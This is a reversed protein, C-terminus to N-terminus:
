PGTVTKDRGLQENLGSKARRRRPKEMGFSLPSPTSQLFGNIYKFIAVEADRRTRWSRQWLLEAKITKFFTEVVANDYREANM